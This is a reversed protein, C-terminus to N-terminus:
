FGQSLQSLADTIPINNFDISWRGNEDSGAHSVIPDFLAVAFLIIWGILCARIIPAKLTAECLYLFIKFPKIDQSSTGMIHYVNIMSTNRYLVIRQYKLRCQQDFSHFFGSHVSNVHFVSRVFFQILMKVIKCPLSDYIAVSFM